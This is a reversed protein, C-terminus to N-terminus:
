MPVYTAGDSNPPRRALLHQNHRWTAEGRLKSGTHWLQEKQIKKSPNELLQHRSVRGLKMREHSGHSKLSKPSIRCAGGQPFCTVGM